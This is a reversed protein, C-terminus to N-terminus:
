QAEEANGDGGIVTAVGRQAAALAELVLPMLPALDHFRNSPALMVIVALDYLALNQQHLLNRDVTLFVDFDREALRLLEGNRKGAWGM